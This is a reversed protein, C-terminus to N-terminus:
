LYKIYTMIESMAEWKGIEGEPSSAMTSGGRERREDRIIMARFYAANLFKNDTSLHQPIGLTRSAPDVLHISDEQIANIEVKLQELADQKGRLKFAEKDSIPKELLEEVEKIDGEIKELIISKREENTMSDYEFSGTHDTEM